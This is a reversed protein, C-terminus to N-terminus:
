KFTKIVGDGEDCSVVDDMDFISPYNSRVRKITISGKIPSKFRRPLFMVVLVSNKLSYYFFKMVLVRQKVNGGWRM